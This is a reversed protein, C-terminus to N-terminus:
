ATTTTSREITEVHVSIDEQYIFVVPIGKNLISELAHYFPAYSNRMGKPLRIRNKEYTVYVLMLATTRWGVFSSTASCILDWCARLLPLKVRKFLIM